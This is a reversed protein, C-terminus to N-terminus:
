QYQNEEANQTPPPNDDAQRVQRIENQSGYDQAMPSRSILSNVLQGLVGGEPQSSGTAPQADVLDSILQAVEDLLESVGKIETTVAQGQIPLETRIGFCGRILVYHSVLIMILAVSQVLQLPEM